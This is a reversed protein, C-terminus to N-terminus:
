GNVVMTYSQKVFGRYDQNSDVLKKLNDYDKKFRLDNGCTERLVINSINPKTKGWIFLPM